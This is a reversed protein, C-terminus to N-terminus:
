TRGRQGAVQVLAGFAAGRSGNSVPIRPLAMPDDGSKAPGGEYAFAFRYGAERAAAELGADVIGFPWALMDVTGGVRAELVQKSRVLQDRVFGQYDPDTRRRRETRFNPHWYTHSQIDVLGTAQVERLQEWTMAYSANSIASPYIFLTVPTQHKRILPLLVTYVSRHGDDVTIAAQRRGATLAAVASRLPTVQIQHQTLWALQSELTSATVTTPGPTSVDFRHYVLIPTGGRAEEAQGSRGVMPAALLGLWTARRTVHAGGAASSGGRM